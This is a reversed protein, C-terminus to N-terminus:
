VHARGIQGVNSKTIQSLLSYRGGTARGNYSPWDNQSTVVRYQSGSKRLLRIKREDSLLQVDTSSQNFVLGEIALGGALAFRARAPGMGTRLRLTRLFRVLDSTEADSLSTFAPMGAAVLGQRIVRSLDADTRSPVRTAINPGLEGGNGDTGHCGACRGVFAERGAEPTQALAISASLLGFAVLIPTRM